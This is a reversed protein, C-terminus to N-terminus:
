RLRDMSRVLKDDADIGRYALIGFVLAFFSLGYPIYNPTLNLDQGTVFHYLALSGLGLITLLIFLVTVKMQLKRNSFLFIDLIALAAGLISVVM